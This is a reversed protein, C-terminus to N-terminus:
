IGQQQQVGGRVINMLSILMTISYQQCGYGFTVNILLSPCVAINNTNTTSSGLPVGYLQQISWPTVIAYNKPDLDSTSGCLPPSHRRRTVTVHLYPASQVYAAPFDHIGTVLELHEFVEAPVSAEGAIRVVANRSHEM